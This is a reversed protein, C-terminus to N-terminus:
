PVVLRLNSPPAARRLPHPYSFPTYKLVWTTGNWTYLQGDAGAQLANWEGEDTVWFGVGVKDAAPSIALMQAKTGIGVGSTGNFVAGHTHKFYDRDAKIVDQMTFTAAPNGTQSRYLDIAAQPIDKWTLVWDLSASGADKASAARNNWLYMPESAAVKPDIGVGIQDKVPYNVPTQYTNGFNSWQGTYGYDTLYFWNKSAVQNITRNDFLMGSGGRMEIATTFEYNSTWTNGYVEMHRVGRAPSNSALGHGDIKIPGNITCYRVVFRANSNADCVYGSGNFVCDEIFVNDYQAGLSTATQWSEPYGRGFILEANGAGGTINCSDFLGNGYAIICFYAGNPALGPDYTIGSIRGFDVTAISFPPCNVYGVIKFDRVHVKASIRIMANQGNPSTPDFNITTSAAGAGTLTIAKNLAVFTAGTGWTFSGAPMSVTDGASAHAIAASVDAQSGDTTYVKGAKTFGYAGPLWILSTLAVAKWFRYAHVVIHM